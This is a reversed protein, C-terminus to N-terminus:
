PRVENIIKGKKRFCVMCDGDGNTDFGIGCKPCITSKTSKKRRMYIMTVFSSIWASTIAAILIIMM